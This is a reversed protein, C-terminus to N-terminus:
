EDSPAEDAPRDARSDTQWFDLNPGLLRKVPETAEALASVADAPLDLDAARANAAAQDASRAGAIVGAVGDQALLWALAVEGMPRGLGDAIRRIGALAAFVEAECGAERHRAGPRDPRFLRTRARGEPVAAATRYKGTLLGQCLPSFPLLAIGRARCLPGAEYEVARFLLSYCVQNSVPTHAPGLGRLYTAGFNSVGVARVKGEAQLAALAGFTEELPIDPNPWHVQYLDLYDTRLRRLSQELCSRLVPPRLHREGVKSAIVVQARRPGLVDALLEESEGSGYGEATDFFTVGADLAARVAARSEERDQEGWTPGGVLAWGGLGVVSVRIGSHGLDRYKV